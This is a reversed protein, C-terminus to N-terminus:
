APFPPPEGGADRVAAPLRVYVLYVLALLDYVAHALIPVLLNGSVILLAGLYVGIVTAYVAYTLTLFHALGFVVSALAVAAWVGVSGALATQMVGRFFVEEGLGALAAILVMDITPDDLIRRRDDVKELGDFVERFKNETVADGRTWWQDCTCGNMLMNGLMGFIHGHDIGLVGLKLGGAM